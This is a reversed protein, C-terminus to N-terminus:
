YEVDWLFLGSAPATPGAERRNQKEIITGIEEPLLTGDGVRVLTGIMIRVMNHLFGSGTVEFIVQNGEQWIESRTITRVRDYKGYLTSFSTFDHTGKFYRAAQQMAVVDIAFPVHWSYQRLFVDSIRANYIYYRYTKWVADYRSHFEKGVESAATARIDAPLLRNFVTPLKEIPIAEDLKFHVVQKRAHVGADTRGSAALRVNGGTLEFLVKALEAQVTPRDPQTQFGHYNTGDYSIELKINRKAKRSM